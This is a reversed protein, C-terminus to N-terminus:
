LREFKAEVEALEARKEDLWVRLIEEARKKDIKLGYERESNMEPFVMIQGREAASELINIQWYLYGRKDNLRRAEEFKEKTM